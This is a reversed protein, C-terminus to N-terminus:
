RLFAFLSICLALLIRYIVFSTVTHKQLFSILFAIVLYGSIFSSIFGALFYIITPMDMTISYLDKLKFLGALITIPTGLLFSFRAANERTYGLFMGATMTSGSRSVGPILAVMQMLGIICADKLNMSSLTKKKKGYKDALFLLVGFFILTFSVVYITKSLNEQSFLSEIQKDFLFGIIGAPLIGLIVGLTLTRTEHLDEKKTFSKPALVSKAMRLFDKWFFLLLAAATGLHLSTDFVLGPTEWGFLWPVITLHASSSVPLFETLGQVIGLAIAQLIHLFLDM